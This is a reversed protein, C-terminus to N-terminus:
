PHRLRANTAGGSAEKDFFACLDDDCVDLVIFALGYCFFEPGIGDELVGIHSPFGIDFGHDTERDRMKSAQIAEKVVGSVATYRPRNFFCGHPPKVFGYANEQAADEHADFVCRGYHFFLSRAADDARTRDSAKARAIRRMHVARTFGGDYVEGACRCHFQSGVVDADVTYARRCQWGWIQGPVPGRARLIQCLM